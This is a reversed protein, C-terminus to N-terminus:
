EASLAGATQDANFVMYNGPQMGPVNRIYLPYGPIHPQHLVFKFLPTPAPPTPTPTPIPTPTPAPPAVPPIQGNVVLALDAALTTANIGNPALSDKGYWDPGLSVYAEEVIPQGRFHAAMARWTITGWMAWTLIVVGQENVDVIPM